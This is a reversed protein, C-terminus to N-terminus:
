SKLSGFSFLAVLSAEKSVLRQSNEASRVLVASGGDM